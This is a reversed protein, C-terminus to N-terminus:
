PATRSLRTGAETTLGILLFIATESGLVMTRHGRCAVDNLLMPPSGPVCEIHEGDTVEMRIRGAVMLGIQRRPTPHFEPDWGPPAYMFVGDTFAIEDTVETPLSPPAFQRPNTPLDVGRFHTEGAQDAFIEIM